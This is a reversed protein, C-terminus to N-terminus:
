KYWVDHFVPYSTSNEMRFQYHFRLRKLTRIRLIRTVELTWFTAFNCSCPAIINAHDEFTVLMFHYGISTSVTYEDEDLPIRTPTFFEMFKSKRNKAFNIHLWVFFYLLVSITANIFYYTFINWSHHDIKSSYYEVKRIVNPVVPSNAVQNIYFIICHFEYWQLCFKWKLITIIMGWFILWTQFM